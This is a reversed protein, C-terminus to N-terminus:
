QLTSPPVEATTGDGRLAKAVANYVESGTQLFVALTAPTMVVAFRNVTNEVMEPSDPRAQTVAQEAFTLRFLGNIYTINILNTYTAPCDLPSTSM